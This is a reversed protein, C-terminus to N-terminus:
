DTMVYVNQQHIRLHTHAGDSIREVIHSHIYPYLMSIFTDSYTYIYIHTCAIALSTSAEAHLHFMKADFNHANSMIFVVIVYPPFNKVTDTDDEPHIFLGM